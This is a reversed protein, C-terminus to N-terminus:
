LNSHIFHFYKHGHNINIQFIAHMNLIKKKGPLLQITVILITMNLIKGYM